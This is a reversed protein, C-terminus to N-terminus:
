MNYLLIFLIQIYTCLMTYLVHYIVYAIYTYLM